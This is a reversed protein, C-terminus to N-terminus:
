FPDSEHYKKSRMEELRDYHRIKQIFYHANVVRAFDMMFNALHFATEDSIDQPFLNDFNISM